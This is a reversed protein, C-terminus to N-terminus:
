KKYLINATYGAFLGVFFGGLIDSPFHVYLYIRSFGVIIALLMAVYWYKFHALFLTFAATFCAGAHGSPFSYGSPTKILLDIPQIYFPRLRHVFPKLFGNLLLFDIILALSLLIGFRKTPNYLLLAVSVLIWFLGYEGLYTSYIMFEDMFGSRLNEQIFNLIVFEFEM